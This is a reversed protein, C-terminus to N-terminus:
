KIYHALTQRLFKISFEDRVDKLIELGEEIGLGHFSDPASRCDKDYCSKFIWSIQLKTCIKKILNAMMFTHERSEIACPGGIFVLPESQGIKVQNTKPSGIIISKAKSTM